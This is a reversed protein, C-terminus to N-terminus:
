AGLSAAFLRAIASHLGQIGLLLTADHRPTPLGRSAYRVVAKDRGVLAVVFCAPWAAFRATDRSIVDGLLNRHGCAGDDSTWSSSRTKVWLGHYRSQWELIAGEAPSSHGFADCGIWWLYDPSPKQGSCRAGAVVAEAPLACSDSCGGLEAERGGGWAWAARRGNCKSGGVSGGSTARGATARVVRQRGCDCLFSVSDRRRVERSLASPRRVVVTGRRPSSWAVM